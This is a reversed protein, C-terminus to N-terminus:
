WTDPRFDKGNCEACPITRNKDVVLTKNHKLCKEMGNECAAYGAYKSANCCNCNVDTKVESNDM